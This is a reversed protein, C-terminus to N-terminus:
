SGSARGALIWPHLINGEFAVTERGFNDTVCDPEVSPECQAISVNFIQERFTAQINGIPMTLKVLLTLM